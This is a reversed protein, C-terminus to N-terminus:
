PPNQLTQSDIQLNLVLPGQLFGPSMGNTQTERTLHGHPLAHAQCATPMKRLRLLGNRFPCLDSFHTRRDACVKGTMPQTDGLSVAPLLVWGEDVVVHARSSPFSPRRGRTRPSSANRLRLCLCRPRAGCLGTWGTRAPRSSNGSGCACWCSASSFHWWGVLECQLM